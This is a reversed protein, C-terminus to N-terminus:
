AQRRLTPLEVAGNMAGNWFDGSLTSFDITAIDELMFANVRTATVAGQSTHTNARAYDLVVFVNDIIAADSSGGVRNMNVSGEAARVMIVSNRVIANAGNSRSFMPAAANWAAMADGYAVNVLTGYVFVNEILGRNHATLMGNHVANSPGGMFNIVALNQIVASPGTGGFIGSLWHNNGTGWTGTTASFTAGSSLRFNKIAHGRGDMTGAFAYGANLAAASYVGIPTISSGGFDIDNVLFYDMALTEPTANRGTLRIWDMPTTIAGQPKQGGRATVVMSYSASGATATITTTGVGAVRIFGNADITAASTNSSIWTTTPSPLVYGSPARAFVRYVDGSYLYLRDTSLQVTNSVPFVEIFAYATFVRGGEGVGTTTARVTAVGSALGTAVGNANVSLINTGETVAWTVNRNIYPNLNPSQFPSINGYLQMTLGIGLTLYNDVNSYPAIMFGTAMPARVTVEVGQRRSGSVAYIRTTGVARATVIGDRSVGAINQNNSEWSLRANEPTVIAEFQRVGANDGIPVGLTMEIAQGPVITISDATPGNECGAIVPVVM